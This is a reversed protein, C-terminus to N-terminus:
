KLESLRSSILTLTDVLDKMNTHRDSIKARALTKEVAESNKAVKEMISKTEDFEALATKVATMDMSEVTFKMTSDHVYADIVKFQEEAKVAASVIKKYATYLDDAQGTIDQQLKDYASNRDVELQAYQTFVAKRVLKNRFDGPSAAFIQARQLEKEWIKLSTVYKDQSKKLDDIAQRIRGDESKLSQVVKGLGSKEQEVLQKVADSRISGACGTLGAFTFLIFVIPLYNNHHMLNM